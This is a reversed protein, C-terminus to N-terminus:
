LTFVELWIVTIPQLSQRYIYWTNDWGRAVTQYGVIQRWQIHSVVSQQEESSSLVMLLLQPKPRHKGIHKLRPLPTHSTISQPGAASSSAAGVDDDSVSSLHLDAKLRVTTWLEILSSNHITSLWTIYWLDAPLGHIRRSSDNFLQYWCRSTDTM